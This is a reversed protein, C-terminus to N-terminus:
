LTVLWAVFALHLVHFCQDVILPGTPWKDAPTQRMLRMWKLHLSYRDQYYHLVGIPLYAIGPVVGLMGLIYMPATYATVHVLCVASSKAKNAAMWENQLLFDGVLHCIVLKVFVDTM